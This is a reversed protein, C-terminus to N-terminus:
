EEGRAKKLLQETEAIREELQQIVCQVNHTIELGPYANVALQVDDDTQMLQALDQYSALIRKLIDLNKAESAYLDPACSILQANAIAEDEYHGGSPDCVLEDNDDVVGGKYKGTGVHWTGKTFMPKSM